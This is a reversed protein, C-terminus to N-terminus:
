CTTTLQFPSFLNNYALKGGGTIKKRAMIKKIILPILFLIYSALSFGIVYIFLFAFNGFHITDSAINLAQGIQKFVPMDSNSFPGIYFMNFSATNGTTHFIINMTFATYVLVAFVPIAKLITKHELKAKGSVIVIVGAVVMVLHHIMSQCFRFIMDSLLTSPYIM